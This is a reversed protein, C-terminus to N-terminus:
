CRMYVSRKIVYPENTLDRYQKSLQNFIEICEGYRKMDKNDNLARHGERVANDIQHGLTIPDEKKPTTDTTETEVREELEVTTM